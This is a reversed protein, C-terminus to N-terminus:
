LDKQKLWNRYEKEYKKSYRLLIDHLIQTRAQSDPLPSVIYYKSDKTDLLYEILFREFEDTSMPPPCMNSGDKNTDLWETFNM